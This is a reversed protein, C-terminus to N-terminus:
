ADTEWLIARIRNHLSRICHCSFLSVLNISLQVLGSVLLWERRRRAKFLDDDSLPRDRLCLARCKLM